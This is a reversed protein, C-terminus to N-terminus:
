YKEWKASRTDRRPTDLQDPTNALGKWEAFDKGLFNRGPWVDSDIPSDLREKEISDFRLEM